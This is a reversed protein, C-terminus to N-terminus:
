GPDVRSQHQRNEPASEERVRFVVQGTPDLLCSRWRGVRRFGCSAMIRTLERDGLTPGVDLMAVGGPGLVRGLEKALPGTMAAGLHHGVVGSASALDVSGDPVAAENGDRLTETVGQCVFIVEAPAGSRHKYARRRAIEVLPSALEYGTIVSGRPCYFSLVRTSSGTGCGLDLVRLPRDPVHGSMARPITRWNAWDQRGNIAAFDDDSMAAYAARVRDADTTRFHIGQRALRREARWQRWFVRVIHGPGHRRITTEDITLLPANDVPM